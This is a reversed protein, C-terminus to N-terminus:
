FREQKMNKSEDLNLIWKNTNLDYKNICAVINGDHVFGGTVYITTDAMNAFSQNTRRFPIDALRDKTVANSSLTNSLINYRWVTGMKEDFTLLHYTGVQVM